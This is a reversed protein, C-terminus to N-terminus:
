LASTLNQRKESVDRSIIYDLYNDVQLQTRSGRGVIQLPYFDCIGTYNSDICIGLGSLNVYVNKGKKRVNLTSGQVSLTICSIVDLPM